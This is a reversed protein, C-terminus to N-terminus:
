FIYCILVMSSSPISSLSSFFRNISIEICSHFFSSICMNLSTITLFCPFIIVYYQYSLFTCFQIVHHFGQFFHCQVYFFLPFTFNRSLPPLSFLLTSPYLFFHFFCSTYHILVIYGINAVNGNGWICIWLEFKGGGGRKM